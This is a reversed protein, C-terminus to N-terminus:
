WRTLGPKRFILDCEINITEIIWPNAIMQRNNRDKLLYM